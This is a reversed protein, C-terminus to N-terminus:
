SEKEELEITDAFKNQAIKKLKKDSISEGKVGTMSGAALSIHYEKGKEFEFTEVYPAGIGSGSFEAVCKVKITGASHLKYVLKTNTLLQCVEEDNFLIKITLGTGGSMMSEKLRYVNILAYDDESSQGYSALSISLMLIAILIGPIKRM